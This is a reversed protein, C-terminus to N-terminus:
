TPNTAVRRSLALCLLASAALTAATVMASTTFAARYGGTALTAFFVSGLVAVGLAGAFQQGTSLVGAASSAHHPPVAAMYLTALPPMILNIACGILLLGPVLSWVGAHPTAYGAPLLAVAGLAFLVCGAGVTARGFRKTLRGVLPATPLAGAAFSVTVLGARLPSYGLGNQMWLTLTLLLGNFGGFAFLQIALASSVSRIRFLDAPLVPASRRVKQRGDWTALAALASLGGALCLWCWTPWGVRNGELLPVVLAVLSATLVGVALVNPRAAGPVRTEPVYRVGLVVLAAAIPVNVMFIARWGSGALDATILLGGLLVGLAHALSAVIGWLGFVSGREEDDFIVYVTSLVQPTLGAAALGQVVRAALLASVSPALGCCLSALGFAAVSILFVRKRGYQEGLRAATILAVAFALLYAASVWELQVPDARLDRQISPLAVNVSTVDVLDMLFAVLLVIAAYWRRPYRHPEHATAPTTDIHM